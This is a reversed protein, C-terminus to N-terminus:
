LHDLRRQMAPRAPAFRNKTPNETHGGSYGPEVKEVGNLRRFLAETCWFCGGALTAKEFQQGPDM